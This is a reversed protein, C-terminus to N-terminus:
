VSERAPSSALRSCIPARHGMQLGPGFRFPPTFPVFPFHRPFSLSVRLHAGGKQLAPSMQGPVVSEICLVAESLLNWMPIWLFISLSSHSLFTVAAGQYTTSREIFLNVFNSLIPSFCFPFNFSILRLRNPKSASHVQSFPAKHNVSRKRIMILSM